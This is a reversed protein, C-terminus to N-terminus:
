VQLKDAKLRKKNEQWKEYRQLFEPDKYVKKLDRIVKIRFLLNIDIDKPDM